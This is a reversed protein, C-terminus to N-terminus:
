SFNHPPTEEIKVSEYLRAARVYGIALKRQLFSTGVKGKYQKILKRAKGLLPDADIEEELITPPGALRKRSNIIAPEYVSWLGLPARFEERFKPPLNRNTIGLNTSIEENEYLKYKANLYRIVDELDHTIQRKEIWNFVLFILAVSLTFELSLAKIFLLVLSVLLSIGVLFKIAETVKALGM